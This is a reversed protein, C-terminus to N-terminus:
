KGKRARKEKKKLAKRTQKTQRPNSRGWYLGDDIQAAVFEFGLDGSYRDQQDMDTYRRENSRELIRLYSECNVTINATKGNDVLTMNDMVGGFIKVPDALIANTSESFTAFWVGVSRGQYDETLASSLLSSDVGSLGLTMGTAVAGAKESVASIEGLDGVGDWSKGDWSLTGIGEWVNVTGSSFDLEALVAAIVRGTQVDAAIAGSLGRSM